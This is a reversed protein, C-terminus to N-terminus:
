AGRLVAAFTDIFSAVDDDTIVLPPVLRIVNPAPANVLIGAARAAIEVDKARDDELVVGLMLGAGRVEKVGDMGALATTLQAGVKRVRQLLGDREIVDLVANAAAASFPNGGFTSGHSGPKFFLAADGFAICAGIPVGGALGKALTIVDPRVDDRQFAFWDGTRGIGTQVEDVIFLAGFRNAVEQVAALYGPSCPVVGGEGQIPEVIIAATDSTVAAAMAAIDDYAVFTVDGPLPLFPERKASQGTLALSGMTRGHFGGETAVVHTKGTLRALKFAAENAEAGSNCFFVRGGRTGSPDAIAVLREALHVGPETIALNSTHGLVSAQGSIAAILDPHAHGLANVAIGAVMDLYENGADDFVRAGQGTVLAIPPTGYNDMM